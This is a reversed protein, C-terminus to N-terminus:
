DATLWPRSLEARKANNVLAEQNHMSPAVVRITNTQWFITKEKGKSVLADFDPLRESTCPTMLAPICGRFIHTAIM